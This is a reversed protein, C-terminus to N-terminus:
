DRKQAFNLRALPKKKNLRGVHGVQFGVRPYPVPEAGPSVSLATLDFRVKELLLGLFLFNPTNTKRPRSIPAVKPTSSPEALPLGRAPNATPVRAPTKRPQYTATMSCCYLLYSIGSELIYEFRDMVSHYKAGAEDLTAQFWTKCVRWLRLKRRLEGYNKNLL